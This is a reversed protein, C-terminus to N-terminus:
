LRLEEAQEEAKQLDDSLASNVEGSTLAGLAESSKV